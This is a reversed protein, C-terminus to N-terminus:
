ESWGAGSPPPPALTAQPAILYYKKRLLGHGEIRGTKDCGDLRRKCASAKEKENSDHKVNIQRVLKRDKGAPRAMTMM